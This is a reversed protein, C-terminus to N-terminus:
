RTSASTGNAATTRLPFAPPTSGVTSCNSPRGASFKSAHARSFAAANRHHATGSRLQRASRQAAQQQLPQTPARNGDNREIAGETEGLVRPQPRKEGRPAALKPSVM